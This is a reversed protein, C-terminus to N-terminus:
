EITEITRVSLDIASMIDEVTYRLSDIGRTCEIQIIITNKELNTKISIGDPLPTNDPRISELIQKADMESAFDLSITTIM